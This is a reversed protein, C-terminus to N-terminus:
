EKHNTTSFLQSVVIACSRKYAEREWSLRGFLDNEDKAQQAYQLREIVSEDRIDGRKNAELRENARHKIHVALTTLEDVFEPSTM